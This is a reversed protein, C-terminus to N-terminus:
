WGSFVLRGEFSGGYVKDELQLLDPTFLPRVLLKETEIEPKLKLICIPLSSKLYM